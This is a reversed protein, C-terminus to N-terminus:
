VSREVVDRRAADSVDIEPPASPAPTAAATAAATTSGTGGEPSVADTAAQAGEAAQHQQFILVVAWNYLDTKSIGMIRWFFKRWPLRYKNAALERARAELELDPHEELLVRVRESLPILENLLAQLNPDARLAEYNFGDNDGPASNDATAEVVRVDGTAGADNGADNGAASRADDGDGEATASAADADNADDGHVVRTEDGHVEKYYDRKCIPCCARRQILWPDVCAAHFVHGCVLGRVVDDGEYVELCIACSGLDFHLERHLSADYHLDPAGASRVQHMEVAGGVDGADAVDEEATEASEQGLLSDAPDLKGLRLWHDYRQPPFLSEVEAPTLKKMRAFRGRHRRHRRRGFFQREVFEDRLFHHTRLYDLHEHIERNSPTYTFVGPDAFALTFMMGRGSVPYVHLGYRLRVFYRLTFFVFLAAIIVAVAMALFFLVTSPTNGVFSSLKNFGTASPIASQTQLATQSMSQTM